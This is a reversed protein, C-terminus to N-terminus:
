EVTVSKALNKPQDIDNGLIRAANYSILQFLYIVPIYSFNNYEQDISILKENEEILNSFCNNAIYINNSGRSKTEKMNSLTKEFLLGNDIAFIGLVYSNKDILAITGHKLEGAPYANSNLYTIEKFKLSAENALAFNIGKGLFFINKAKIIEKAIKEIEKNKLIKKSIKNTYILDNINNVIEKNSIKKILKAWYLIFLHLIVCQVIYAKTSAVAFEVGCDMDINIDSLQSITSLENNTISLVFENHQKILKLASITDATEGSQSIVINLTDEIKIFKEYKFESAIVTECKIELIDTVINNILLGANYATGCGIIRVFKIKKLLENINKNFKFDISNNAYKKIIKEILIPQENIEKLMYTEYKEKSVNYKKNNLLIPNIKIKKNNFDFFSIDNKLIAITNEDIFYYQNTNKPLSKVDSSLFIGDKNETIVLPSSKAVAYIEDSNKFIIALAYSGVIEKLAKKIAIKKDKYKIYFYDILKAVVETDTQSYFNYGNDILKRKIELYNEIIGNHVLIVNDSYHPHSNNESIGGHTAWRTHAIAFFSDKDLNIKEVLNNIKGVSKKISIGNNDKYAIGSSDYGRYELSKLIEITNKIAKNKKNDKSIFGAIGCM